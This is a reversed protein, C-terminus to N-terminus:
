FRVKIPGRSQCVAGCSGIGFIGSLGTLFQEVVLLLEKGVTVLPLRFNSGSGSSISRVALVSQAAEM